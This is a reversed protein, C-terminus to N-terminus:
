QAAISEIYPNPFWTVKNGHSDIVTPVPQVPVQNSVPALYHPNNITVPTPVSLEVPAIGAPAAFPSIGYPRSVIGNYYVPPFQAFYPPQERPIFFGNGGNAFVGAGFGYGNGYCNGGACQAESTNSFVAMMGVALVLTLVTRM